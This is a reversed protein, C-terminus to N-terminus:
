RYGPWSRLVCVSSSETARVLDIIAFQLVGEGGGEREPGCATCHPPVPPGVVAATTRRMLQVEVAIVIVLAM